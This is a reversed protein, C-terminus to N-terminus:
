KKKAAPRTKPLWKKLARMAEEASDVLKFLNMDKPSIYSEEALLTKETWAIMDKWFSAGVLIIPMAPIKLTQVLTLHEFLEDMTGFGGPFAIIARSYKSFM